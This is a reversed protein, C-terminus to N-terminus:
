SRLLKVSVAIRPLLAPQGVGGGDGRLSIAPIRGAPFQGPISWSDLSFVNSGLM